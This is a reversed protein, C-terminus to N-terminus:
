ISQDSSPRQMIRQSLQGFTCLETSQTIRRGLIRDRPYTEVEQEIEHCINAYHARVESRLHWDRLQQPKWSICIYMTEIRMLKICEFFKCVLCWTHKQYPQSNFPLTVLFGLNRAHITPEEFFKSTTQDAVCFPLAAFHPLERLCSLGWNIGESLKHLVWRSNLFIVPYLSSWLLWDLIEFTDLQVIARVVRYCGCIYLSEQSTSLRLTRLSTELWIPQLPLAQKSSAKIMKSLHWKVTHLPKTDRQVPRSCVPFDPRHNKWRSKPWLIRGPLHRIDFVVTGGDKSKLIQLPMQLEETWPRKKSSRRTLQASHLLISWPRATPMGSEPSLAWWLTFVHLTGKARPRWWMTVIWWRLSFGM